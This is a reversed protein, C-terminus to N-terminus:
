NIKFKFKGSPVSMNRVSDMSILRIFYYNNGSPSSALGLSSLEIKKSYHRQVYTPTTAFNSDLSIIVSDATASGNRSWVLSDLNGNLSAGSYSPHTVYPAPPATLDITFTNVSNYQSFSFPNYAKVQWKYNGSTSPLTYNYNTATINSQNHISSGTSNLINIEYYTAANLSSWSFNITTSNTLLGAPAISNVTVLALNSTTDVKLTRTTYVTSSGGNIGKIRWQYTGPTLIKNFKNGTLTTDVILQIISNFDPKVIQLNYTEAGDLEDWWFTIANNPTSLNDAPAVISVTENKIDKAIFDKTCAIILGICCLIVTFNIIKKM